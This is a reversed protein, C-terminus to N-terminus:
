VAGPTKKAAYAGLRWIGLESLLAGATLLLFLGACQLIAYPITDKSDMHFLIERYFMCLACCTLNLTPMPGISYNKRVSDAACVAFTLLEVMVIAIFQANFFPGLESLEAGFIGGGTQICHNLLAILCSSYLAGLAFITGCLLRQWKGKSAAQYNSLLLYTGVSLGFFLVSYLAEEHSPHLRAIDFLLLLSFLFLLAAGVANKRAYYQKVRKMFDLQVPGADKASLEVCQISKMHSRCEACQSLHAEVARKSEESCIEDLYSPILDKVIDCNLVCM